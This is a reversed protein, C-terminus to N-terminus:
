NEKFYKRNKKHPLEKHCYPCYIYFYSFGYVEDIDYEFVCDCHKCKTKFVTNGEKIIKTAM